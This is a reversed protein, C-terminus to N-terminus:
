DLHSYDWDRERAMDKTWCKDCYYGAFWQESHGLIPKHCKACVKIGCKTWTMMTRLKKQSIDLKNTWSYIYSGKYWITHEQGILGNFEANGYRIIYTDTSQPTEKIFERLTVRKM